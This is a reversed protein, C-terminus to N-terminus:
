GGGGWGVDLGHDYVFDDGSIREEEAISSFGSEISWGGKVKLALHCGFHSSHIFHHAEVFVEIVVVKEYAVQSFFSKRGSMKIGILCQM